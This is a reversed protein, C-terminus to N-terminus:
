QMSLLVLIKGRGSSLPQLAKGIVTGPQHFKRGNIEIPQSKMATGPVDSTVLLDGIAIAARTADVNVSVRGTTAIKEKGAAGVGLILGPTASVVGAITTDYSTTSPIVQDEHLPDLVVVTAPDLAAGTKVWEAVDQYKCNMTGDVNLNGNADVNLTNRWAVGGNQWLRFVSGDYSLAASAGSASLEIQPVTGGILVQTYSGRAPRGASVDLPAGPANAGVGIGVNGGNYHIAGTAEPSTPPTWQAGVNLVSVFSTAIAILIRRM